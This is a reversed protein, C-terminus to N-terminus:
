PNVPTESFQDKAKTVLIFRAWRFLRAAVKIKVKADDRFFGKCEYFVIQGNADVANFDPTYRCDDALKLTINQVGINETPYLLRMRALWSKELKNLKAEDSTKSIVVSTHTVAERVAEGMRLQERYKEPLEQANIGM